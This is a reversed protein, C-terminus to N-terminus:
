KGSELAPTGVKYGLESIASAIREPSTQGEVFEVRARRGALDVEANRVGDIGKATRKVSAACSGCSMGEVPINVRVTQAAAENQVSQEGEQEASSEWPRFVGVLGLGLVAVAAVLWVAPSPRSSRQTDDSEM